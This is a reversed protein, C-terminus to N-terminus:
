INQCLQELREGSVFRKKMENTCKNYKEFTHKCNNVHSYVKWYGIYLHKKGEIFSLVDTLPYGLFIGIEHPFHDLTMRKQLDIILSELSTCSYNYRKFFSKMKHNNLLNLLKEKQYIYIMSRNEYTILYLFIGKENLLGNYYEICEDLQEFSSDINFLNGTKLKALTPSAYQVLQKEFEIASIPM